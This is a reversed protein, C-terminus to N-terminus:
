APHRRAGQGAPHAPASAERRGVPANLEAAMAAVADALRVYQEPRNYIQASVRLRLLAQFRMVPVEIRHREDIRAQIEEPTRDPDQLAAPLTVTAMSGLMSGDPPSIPEVGFREVLLAHAWTALAHNHAMVRELGLRELAAIAAPLTLWGSFDRTGQWDFEREFGEDLFHSVVCPHIRSRWEPTVRLFATGKPACIWKHLNAVYFDAGLAELRLPLMGPAHAGDVLVPVGRRRCEAVIREVPLVLATASTVHDVVVLRTRPGMAEVFREVVQQPSTIPLPLTVERVVAGARRAAEKMAQRVANYVHDVTLLEDGPQFTLSRLVANVGETANTVFGLEGPPCGVLRGLAQKSVALLEQIRRGIREIPRAELTRRWEEQAAAVERMVAGFSGHNLFIWAPDLQFLSEPDPLLPQPPTLPNPPM